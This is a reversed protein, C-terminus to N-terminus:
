QLCGRSMRQEPKGWGLHPVDHSAAPRSVRTEPRPEVGQHNLKAAVHGASVPLAIVGPASQVAADVTLPGGVLGTTVVGLM